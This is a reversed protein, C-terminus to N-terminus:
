KLNDKIIRGVGGEYNFTDARVVVEGEDVFLRYKMYRNMFYFSRM